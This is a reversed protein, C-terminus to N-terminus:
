RIEPMIVKGSAVDAEFAALSHPTGIDAFYARQVQGYLRGAAALPPFVEREISVPRGEPIGALATPELLYVGGNVLAGAALGGGAPKEAFSLIKGSVDLAVCGRERGEALTLLAITAAAQARPHAGWLSELNALYLTDGNLAYFPTQLGRAALRLAGGTGLPTSEVSYDIALGWRKGGAAFSMVQEALYGLSLIAKKIGQGALYALVYDLFPRGAAPALVKPRDGVAGRLRTGLGGALVIATTPMPHQQSNEIM